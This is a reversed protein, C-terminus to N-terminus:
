LKLFLNCDKEHKLVTSEGHGPFVETDEPLETILRKVSKILVDRNGGPFNYNGISEFFLTDGSFLKGDILYSMSGETHGPTFYCGIKLDGSKFIQGDSLLIDAKFHETKIGFLESLNINDNCIKDAEEKGVAIKLDFKNKLEAVAGIHDFHCHTLLILISKGYSKASMLFKEVKESKDGPDIVIASNDSSLLYCNTQMQGLKVIDLEM